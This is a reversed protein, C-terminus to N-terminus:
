SADRRRDIEAMCEPCPCAQLTSIDCETLPYPLNVNRCTAGPAKGNRFNELPRAEDVFKDLGRSLFDALTYRHSWYHSSSTLVSHYNDIAKAIEEDTYAKLATKIKGRIKDTLKRHVIIGKSNWHDFLGIYIINNKNHTPRTDTATDSGEEFGGEVLPKPTDNETDIKSVPHTPQQTPECQYFDYNVLTILTYSHTTQRKAKEDNELLKLFTRVSRIGWGWREALKRYSILVQGRQVKVIDGNRESKGEKHNAVLLLDIWARLYEPNDWLWCDSISRHLKIWGDNM